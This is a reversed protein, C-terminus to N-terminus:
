APHMNQPMCELNLLQKALKATKSGGPISKLMACAAEGPPQGVLTATELFVGLIHHLDAPTKQLRGVLTDLTRYVSCHHLPSIRAVEAFVAGVRNLKLQDAIAALHRGLVTPDLTREGIAEILADTVLSKVVESGLAWAALRAAEEHWSMDRGFLNRLFATSNGRGLIGLLCVPRRNGPWVISLWGDILIYERLPAGKSEEGPVTVHWSHALYLLNPPFAADDCIPGAFHLSGDNGLGVQPMVVAGLDLDALDDILARAHAAALRLERGVAGSM